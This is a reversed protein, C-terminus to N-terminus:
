LVLHSNEFSDSVNAGGCEPRDEECFNVILYSSSVRQFDNVIDALGKESEM